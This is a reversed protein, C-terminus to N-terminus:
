VVSKRDTGLMVGATAFIAVPIGMAVWFAVRFSLFIFLVVLILILGSMGNNVLLAIRDDILSAQVDYEELVFGPPLTPRIETVYEDVVRAAVLADTTTARQVIIEIAPQGRLQGSPRDEDVGERVTAVDRVLIAQGNAASKLEIEGIGEATKREGLSRIQKQTAGDVDGSPLDVSSGAIKRSVDDITLDLRQLTARDLSVKIEDERLGFFEIKDIGRELLEDRIRKAVVKLEAESVAGSIVIRSILDYRIVRKIRPDEADEPLTTLGNVAADVDALASQMDTGANFEVVVVASGENSYSNVTKVGDLFRVEPEVAAVINSDADEASAGPWIVTITIFDLGTNPFFQTNLRNLGFIGAILMLAMLLNAANRHRVFISVLAAPNM